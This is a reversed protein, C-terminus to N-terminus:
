GDYHIRKSIKFGCSKVKQKFFYIIINNNQETFKNKFNNFFDYWTEVKLSYPSFTPKEPKVPFQHLIVVDNPYAKRMYKRKRSFYLKLLGVSTFVLSAGVIALVSARSNLTLPM